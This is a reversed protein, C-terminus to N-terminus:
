SLQVITQVLSQRDAAPQGRLGDLLKSIKLSSLLAEAEAQDLPCMAVASDAMLEVMIGGAAIMIIPGFQADNVTGLAIEVGVGVMKAVLAAPGLRQKLDVYHDSLQKENQIGVFVGNCDSKHNIGAEATKLVLPYGLTVAADILEDQNVVIHHEVVPISFAALLKLADSEAIDRRSFSLITERISKSCEDERPEVPSHIVQKQKFKQYRFLHSFALLAANAGNILPIGAEFARKSMKANAVDSYTSILALPKQTKQKVAAVARFIAEHLYYDDRFISVFAGGAVNPDAMLADICAQFREEFRHHSGWADLPNEPKLGPDLHKALEAITSAEINAFELGIRDATDTIFERLGGSEFAAAFGGGSGDASRDTAAECGSQLLMLTAALEDFDNVEIVGYRKLLAGFAAHNGAIAGTHTLAMEVSRPSKGIKLIVVPINKQNSKQLAAIFKEPDRVTELFLAVVRTDPQELSWDLYDAATTTMENGSSVCLNFGLRCGNHALTTFATGSQAIYSIGGKAIIDPKPFLGAYFDISLNYFGMGNAGCIQMDGAKAMDTLRQSLDPTSDTELVVGSYITAAKAGHEIAAALSTELRDSGLAIIVQEVQIPLSALDAYCPLGLISEYGPNVPFVQGRFDSNIVMEALVRGPSGERESAGILAVSQPQLLCDLRHSTM